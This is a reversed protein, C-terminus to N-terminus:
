NTHKEKELFTADVKGIKTKPLENRFEIEAPIAYRIMKKSCIDIITKELEDTSKVNESPVVFAKVVQMKYPHPIAIVCVEKVDPISLIIKEIRSPFVSVGSVKIIRKIRQVFHFFGDNDMFGFDGTHVWKLGDSHERVVAATEDPENLYGLMVTPGSVCIEGEENPPLEKTTGVGVIKMLIDALPLGVTGGKNNEIPNVCCVTVTETLGYGERVKADSNHKKLFEDFRNKLNESLTDGGCFVSKVYSLDIKDLKKNSLIGELLTPIAAIFNPREKLLLAALSDASFIPVLIANIGNVMMTHMGMCLGFGHFLPLITAMSLGAAEKIGVLYPGQVALVNLNYSSLMITKPDGTTGGSHLYVACEHPSFVRTYVTPKTNKNAHKQNIFNKWSIRENNLIVPKIKRGKTLYFGLSMHVSLYDSVSCIVTLKIKTKSLFKEDKPYFADLIFLSNSKTNALIEILEESPTLPHVMNAIGGIKNIAYFVIIAQPINPLCITIVDGKSIGLKILKDAAFDVSKKLDKYKIYTGMFSCATYNSYTQASDSFLEYMTKDPYDVSEPFNEDYSKLWPKEVKQRM